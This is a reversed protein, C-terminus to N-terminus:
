NNAIKVYYQEERQYMKKVAPARDTLKKFINNPDIIIEPKEEMISQFILAMNSYRSMNNWVENSLRWNIFPTAPYANRYIQLNNDLNAIKKDKVANVTNTVYYSKFDFISTDGTSFIAKWNIGIILVLLVMFSFESGIGRKGLIFYFSIFYTLGPVFILLVFPNRDIQMTLILSSLIIMFLMVRLLRAQYNTLRAKNIVRIIAFLWYMAPPAALLLIFNYSVVNEGSLRFWSLIHNSWFFILSDILYYYIVTLALPLVWGYIILLYRRLITSSFLILIIVISPGLIILPFHFLAAIGLYLGISFLKEDKKARFEIQSIVNNLALLVFTIGLLMPSLTFFDFFASSLLSYIIAPIYTNEPFVANNIAIMNFIAAQFFSLLLALILFVWQSRGFISNIIWYTGSSLPSVNDWIEQYMTFGHSMREGILMWKLEPILIDQSSLWFPLRIIILLLFVGILRYPDNLRFYNLL